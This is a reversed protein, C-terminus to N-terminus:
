SLKVSWRSSLSSKALEENYSKPGISGWRLILIMIPFFVVNCIYSYICSVESQQSVRGVFTRLLASCNDNNQTGIYWCIYYQKRKLKQPNLLFIAWVFLFYFLSNIGLSHLADEFVSHRGKWTFFISRRIAEHIRYEYINGEKELFSFAVGLQKTYVTSM